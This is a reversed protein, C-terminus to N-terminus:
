SKLVGYRVLLDRFTSAPIGLLRAGSAIRKTKQWADKIAKKSHEVKGSRPRGRLNGTKTRLSEAVVLLKPHRTQLISSFSTRSFGLIHAAHTLNGNTKSIAERISKAELKHIDSTLGM